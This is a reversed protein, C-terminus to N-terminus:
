FSFYLHMGLETALPYFLSLLCLNPSSVKFEQIRFNKILNAWFKIETLKKEVKQADASKQHFKINKPSRNQSLRCFVCIEKESLFDIDQVNEFSALNLSLQDINLKAENHSLKAFGYYEIM